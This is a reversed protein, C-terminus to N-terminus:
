DREANARAAQVAYDLLGTAYGDWHAGFRPDDVQMQLVGLHKAPQCPYFWRDIQVRQADVAAIARADTPAVGDEYLRALGRFAAEGEDQIEQWQENTYRAVRRQSEKTTPLTRVTVHALNAVEGIGYTM